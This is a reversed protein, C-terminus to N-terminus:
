CTNYAPAPQTLDSRSRRPEGGRVLPFVRATDQPEVVQASALGDEDSGGADCVRLQELAHPEGAGRRPRLTISEIFLPRSTM